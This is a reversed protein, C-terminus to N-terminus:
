PRPFAAYLEALIELLLGTDYLDGYLWICKKSRWLPKKAMRIDAKIEQLSRIRFKEDKYMPCFTCRNHSCVLPVVATYIVTPKMLQSSIVKGEYRLKRYNEKRIVGLMQTRKSFCNISLAKRLPLFIKGRHPHQPSLPKQLDVRRSNPFQGWYIDSLQRSLLDTQFILLM